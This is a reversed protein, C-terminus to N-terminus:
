PNFFLFTGASDGTLVSFSRPGKTGEFYWLWEAGIDTGGTDAPPDFAYLSPYDAPNTWWWSVMANDYFYTSESTSEPFRFMWAHEAHFLWPAFTTNYYGFWSSLFWDELGAVPVGGLLPDAVNGNGSFATGDSMAGPSFLLFNESVEFHLAPFDGTIDPDRTLSQAQNAHEVLYEVEDMVFGHENVLRVISDKDSALNVGNSGENSVQVIAGGFLDNEPDNMDEEDGGGFVVVSGQDGIVTGDPFEHVISLTNVGFVGQAVNRIAWGSIDVAFGSNNVIEIFQDEVGEEDIGNGNPDSATEAVGQLLENIVVKFPNPQTETVLLDALGPITDRERVIIPWLRDGSLVGDDFVDVDFTGQTAGEAITLLVLRVAKGLAEDIVWFIEVDDGSFDIRDPAGLSEISIVLGGSPAASDLTVTGTVAAAGANEAVTDASLALTAAYAFDGFPTVGDNKTGPSFIAGGSGTAVDHLIYETGTLEPELVAAILLTGLDGEYTVAFVSAGGADLNVTDGTNSWGLNGQSATQITAGGFLGTPVGGGFVVIARGDQIVSGPPFTHRPGIDDSIVWGSLDVATGDGSVNVIEVFEDETNSRTGDGNADGILDEPISGPVGALFENLVISPAADVNTTTIAIFDNNFGSGSVFIRTEVDGDFRDDSVADVAFTGVTAGPAIVVTAPVSIESEPGGVALSSVLSIDLTAGGSPAASDLTVTVTAAGAGATESVVANDISLAFGAVADDATVQLDDFALEESGGNLNMKIRIQMTEGSGPVDWSLTKFTQTLRPEVNHDPLTNENGQFYRAPSNTFTGRFGGITEWGGDDFKVEIFLGNDFETQDVGQAAAMSITLQGLGAISFSNFTIRGEDKAMDDVAVGGADIDQGTWFWEGDITGGSTETGASFEQRRAFYNGSLDDSPNEVTYRTDLGDTEFSESFPTVTAGNLLAGCMGVGALAVGRIWKITKKMELNEPMNM